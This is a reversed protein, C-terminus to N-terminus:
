DIVVGGTIVIRDHNIGDPPVTGSLQYYENIITQKVNEAAQEITTISDTPQDIEDFFSFMITPQGNSLAFQKKKGEMKKDRELYTKLQKFDTLTVM